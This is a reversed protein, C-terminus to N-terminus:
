ALDMLFFSQSTIFYMPMQAPPVAHVFSLGATFRAPGGGSDREPPPQLSAAASAPGGGFLSDGARRGPAGPSAGVRSALQTGRRMDCVLSPPVGPRAHSPARGGSRSVHMGLAYHNQAGPVGPHSRWAPSRGGVQFSEGQRVDRYILGPLCARTPQFSYGSACSQISEVGSHAVDRAGLCSLVCLPRSSKACGTSQRRPLPLRQDLRGAGMSQRGDRKAPAFPWTM